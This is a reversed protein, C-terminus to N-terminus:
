RDVGFWHAASVGGFRGRPANGRADDLLDLHYTYPDQGEIRVLLPACIGAGILVLVALGGALGWRQARLRAWGRSWQGGPAGAPLSRSDREAEAASASALEVMRVLRERDVAGLRDDIGAM